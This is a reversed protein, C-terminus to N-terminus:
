YLLKFRTVNVDQDIEEGNELWRILMNSFYPALTVGKTGLGNFIVLPKHHPHVGLVPRRDALTPRQGWDQGIVEYPFTILGNLKEELEQRGARSLGPTANREYTAGVKWESANGPVIYVGRNLIVDKKHSSKITITQGKLIKLPINKFWPNELSRVGQCFIIKSAEMKGYIVHDNKVELKQVDFDENLFVAHNKFYRMAAGIFVPTNIYGSQSLLVGGFSDHVGEFAPTTYIRDIYKLYQEDSSKGMWENQEEFSIFPRYIPMPHFFKESTMQEAQPYFRFLYPFLIDAKWTKMMGKGTIPNFLGAAVRSSTSESYQDILAIKKGHSILQLGLTSGALGQGVVIYDVATV